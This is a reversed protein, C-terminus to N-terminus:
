TCLNALDVPLVAHYSSPLPLKWEQIEWREENPLYRIIQVPPNIIIAYM